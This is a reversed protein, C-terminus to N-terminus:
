IAPDSVQLQFNKSHLAVDKRCNANSEMETFQFSSLQTIQSGLVFGFHTNEKLCRVKFRRLLWCCCDKTAMLSLCHEACFQNKQKPSVASSHRLPHMPTIYKLKSAYKYGGRSIEVVHMQLLSYEGM